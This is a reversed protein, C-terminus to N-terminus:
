QWYVLKEVLKAKKGVLKAKTEICAVASIALAL